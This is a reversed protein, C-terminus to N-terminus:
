CVTKPDVGMERLADAYGDYALTVVYEASAHARNWDDEDECTAELRELGAELAAETEARLDRFLDARRADPENVFFGIVQAHTRLSVLGRGVTGAALREITEERSRLYGHVPGPDDGPDFAEAADPDADRLSEIVRDYHEREREAMAAFRKRATDDEEDDAWAAFTDRAAAESAAAVSLVAPTTLDAGTLAVLLKNSGLRDLETACESAVAERFSSGDM